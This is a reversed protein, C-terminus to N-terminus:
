PKTEVDSQEKLLVKVESILVNGNVDTAKFIEEIEEVTYFGLFKDGIFLPQPEKFNRLTEVAESPNTFNKHFIITLEIEEENQGVYQLTTKQLIPSHKAYNYSTKRKFSKPTNALWFSFDGLSGWM